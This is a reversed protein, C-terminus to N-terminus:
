KKVEMVLDRSYDRFGVAKYFEAAASDFYTGVSIKAAHQQRVWVKFRAILKEGIAQRRYEARVFMTEIEAWRNAGAVYEVRETMSGALYGAVVGDIEAVLCCTQEGAIAKELYERGSKEYAFNANETQDFPLEYKILESCLDQVIKLEAIKAPRITIKSM